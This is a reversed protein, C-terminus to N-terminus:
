GSVLFPEQLGLPGFVAGYFALSRPLDGCVLDVHGLGALMLGCDSRIARSRRGDDLGSPASTFRTGGLCSGDDFSPTRLTVFRGARPACCAGNARRCPKLGLRCTDGWPM